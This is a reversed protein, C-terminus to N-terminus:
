KKAKPAAKFEDATMTKFSGDQMVVSGGATPVDKHYALVAGSGSASVPAKWVVVFEGSAVAAHGVPHSAPADTLDALSNPAKKTAESHEKLMAAVDSVKDSASPGAANDSSGGSGGCGLLLAALLPFARAIPRVTM